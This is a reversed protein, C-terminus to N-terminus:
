GANSFFSGSKDTEADLARCRAIRSSTTMSKRFISRVMNTIPTTAGVDSIDATPAGIVGRYKTHGLNSRRPGGRTAGSIAAYGQNYTRGSRGRLRDSPATTPNFPARHRQRFTGVFGSICIDASVSVCESSCFMLPHRLEVDIHKGFNGSPLSEQAVQRTIWSSSNM